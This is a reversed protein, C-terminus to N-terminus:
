IVIPLKKECTSCAVNKIGEVNVTYGHREVCTNGCSPCFTNDYLGHPLNGLYVYNLGMEKATDYIQRLTEIPTMPRSTMKYDPHFRSFHVVTTEGLSDLIWKCFQKIEDLTDNLGPIVLYTLEIHINLDKALTCTNLISPLRAKCVSKYFQDSFSKVDINMADLYPSIEKLPEEAIFGNTVYVTYLDSKKALKASDYTYEYWITPENYTWSIGRCGHEKALIISEEPSM